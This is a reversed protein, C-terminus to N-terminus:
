SRDSSTAFFFTAVVQDHSGAITKAIVSKGVAAPGNLWLLPSKTSTNDDIWEGIERRITKRTDSYCEPPSHFSNHLA